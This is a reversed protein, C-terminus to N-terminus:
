LQLLRESEVKRVPSPSLPRVSNAPRPVAPRCRGDTNNFDGRGQVMGVPPHSEAEGSAAIVNRVFQDYPMNKQFARRIWAHFRFTYPIDNANARKNRLVNAWKNAFYDAYGSNKLLRDILKNRKNPDKDEIFTTAEDATPLQGAIDSSVRRIFTSDDCLGPRLFEM